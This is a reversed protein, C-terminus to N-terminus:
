LRDITFLLPFRGLLGACGQPKGAANLPYNRDAFVARGKKDPTQANYTNGLVRIGVLIASFRLWRQNTDADERVSHRRCLCALDQNRIGIGNVRLASSRVAPSCASVGRLGFGGLLLM